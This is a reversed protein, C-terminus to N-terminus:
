DTLPQHVRAQLCSEKILDGDGSVEGTFALTQAAATGVYMLFSFVSLLTKLTTKM